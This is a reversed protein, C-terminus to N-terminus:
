KLSSSDYVLVKNWLDKNEAIFKKHIPAVQYNDHAEKSAFTIVVCYTFSADVVPRKETNAPTGFHSSTIFECGDLLEKVGKEFTKREERNDPNNLWFLVTHVLKGDITKASKTTSEDQQAFSFSSILLAALILYRKM